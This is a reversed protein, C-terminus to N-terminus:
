EKAQDEEVLSLGKKSWGKGTMEPVQSEQFCPKSAFVSAFAANMVQAKEMDQLVVDGTKNLWPGTNKRTKRKHGSFFLNNEM